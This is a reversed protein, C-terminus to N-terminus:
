ANDIRFDEVYSEDHRDRRALANTRQFEERVRAVDPHGDIRILVTYDHPVGSRKELRVALHDELDSVVAKPDCEDEDLLDSMKRLLPTLYVEEYQGFHEEIIELAQILIPDDIPRHQGNVSIAEDVDVDVDVTGRSESVARRSATSLLDRAPFFNEVDLHPEDGSTRPEDTGVVLARRGYRKFVQVLPLYTRKGTLLVFMSIDARHHLLDMADVCLQLEVTQADPTRPVFLPEVGRAYLTRQIRGEGGPLRTFDAYARSVVTRTNREETLSRQLAEIMEAILEDAKSRGELTHSLTHFINEYDVFIAARIEERRGDDGSHAM